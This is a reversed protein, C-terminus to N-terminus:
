LIRLAAWILLALGGILFLVGVWNSRADSRPTRPVIRGLNRISAWRMTDEKNFIFSYGLWILLLGMVVSAWTNM